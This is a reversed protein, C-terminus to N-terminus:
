TDWTGLDNEECFDTMHENADDVPDHLNDIGITQIHSGAQNEAWAKDFGRNILHQTFKNKYDEIEM